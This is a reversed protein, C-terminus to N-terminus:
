FMITEFVNGQENKQICVYFRNFVHTQNAKTVLALKKYYTFRM